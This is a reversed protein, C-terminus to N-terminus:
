SDRSLQRAWRMAVRREVPIGHAGEDALVERLRASLAEEAIVEFGLAAYFPANWVVERFTTLTLPQEGALEQLRRMLQAGIGQRQYSLAVAMQWVHFVGDDCREASIFGVCREEDFAGLVIGTALYRQHAEASMVDDDAIWALDPLTRFSEGSSREIEPFSLTDAMTASRIDITVPLEREVLFM